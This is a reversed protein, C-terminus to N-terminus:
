CRRNDPDLFGSALGVFAIEARDKGKPEAENVPEAEGAGALTKAKGFSASAM